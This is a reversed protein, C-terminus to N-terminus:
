SDEKFPLFIAARTIHVDINASAAKADFLTLSRQEWHRCKDSVYIRSMTQELMAEYHNKRNAQRELWSCSYQPMAVGVVVVLVVLVVIALRGGVVFTGEAAVVGRHGSVGAVSALGRGRRTVAGNSSVVARGTPTGPAKRRSRGRGGHVVGFRQRADAAM